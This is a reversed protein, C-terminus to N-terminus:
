FVEKSYPSFLAPSPRGEGADNKWNIKRFDM